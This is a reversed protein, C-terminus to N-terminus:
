PRRVGEDVEIEAGAGAGIVTAATAVTARVGGDGVVAAVLMAEHHRAIEGAMDVEVEEGLRRHERRLDRGQTRSAEGQRGQARTAALATRSIEEEGEGVVEASGEQHHGDARHHDSADEAQVQHHGAGFAEGRLVM